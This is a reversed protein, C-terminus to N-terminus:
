LLKKASEELIIAAAGGGILALAAAGGPVMRQARAAALSPAEGTGANGLYRESYAMAAPMVGFLTLVGFTGAVDLADLFVDPQLAAFVVPPVLTLAYPLPQRGTPLGLGDALFDSLGLVFGVFSTTVALLSFTEVFGGLGAESLSRLPDVASGPPAAGLAAAEWLLFMVLPVATGGLLATRIKAVDGELSTVVTPVINQYVFSLAIVPLAGTVAGWDAHALNEASAQGGAAVLCVGFSGVVGAFLAGNLGDLVKPQLFYCAGGVAAAFAAGGVAPSLGTAVEIAQGGRSIYAVLLCYHLFVYAGWAFRTGPAGLTRRAMSVIGTGGGESVSCLTAINVEVILLGTAAMYAWCGVLAATSPVFGAPATVAPLALVGAGVATGSVLVTAGWVSGPEHRLAGGGGAGSLNSWLRTPAPAASALFVKGAQRAGGAARGEGGEGGGREESSVAVTVEASRRAGDARDRDTGASAAASGRREITM